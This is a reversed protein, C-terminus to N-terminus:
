RVLRAGAEFRRWALARRETKEIFPNKGEIYANMDNPHAAALGEKLVSYRLAVDAHTRLFDRFALHRGAAPSGANFAHVQFARRGAIDRRFYRRGPIGFEGMAEYGRVRVAALRDEADLAEVCSAELLVDIVPKAVIGRVSTSGIHHIAVAAPGFSARLSRAEEAFIRGWRVDHPLVRVDHPTHSMGSCRGPAGAGM